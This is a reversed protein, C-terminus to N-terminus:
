GGIYWNGDIRVFNAQGDGSDQGGGTVTGTATDGTIEVDTLAVQGSYAAAGTYEDPLVGMIDGAFDAPDDLGDALAQLQDQMQPTMGPLDGESIGYNELIPMLDAKEVGPTMDAMAAMGIMGMAMQNQMDPAFAHCMTKFDQRKAAAVMSDFLAQPSSHNLAGSAGGNGGGAADEDDGDDGDGADGGGDDGDDGDDNGADGDGGDGDGGSNDTDGGTDGGDGGGCGVFMAVGLVLGATLMLHMLRKSFDKM